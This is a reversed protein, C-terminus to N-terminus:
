WSSKRRPPFTPAPSRTPRSSFAPWSTPNIGGVDKRIIEVSKGALKDGHQKLYLKAGNDSQITPDAFQGSYAMAIGIKISDEAHVTGALLGPVFLSPMFLSPVFALVGGLLLRKM